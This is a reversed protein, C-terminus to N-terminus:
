DHCCLVGGLETGTKTVLLAEDTDVVGCSWPAHPCDHEPYGLLANLPSCSPLISAADGVTWGCGVLNNVGNDVCEHTLYETRQRTAWFGPVAQQGCGDPSKVSVEAASDCVHWGAACLDAVSCGMGLPNCGNDGAVGGCQQSMAAPSVTGGLSWAGSCGAILPYSAPDTMLERTGDSCGVVTPDTGVADPGCGGGAGGFGGSAGVGGSGGAAGSGGTGSGGGAGAGGSAGSGGSGTSGGGSGALIGEDCASPTTCLTPDPVGDSVCTGDICTKGDSCPVNKCVDKLAIPLELETHPVFHMTRRAIICGAYDPDRCQDSPVDVGAVVHISFEDDNADSPIVVLSGIRSLPTRAACAATVASPEKDRLTGPAGVTLSTNKLTPCPEDTWTEVMVQTPARCGVALTLVLGSAVLERPLRVEGV